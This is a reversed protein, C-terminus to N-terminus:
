ARRREIRVRRHYRHDIEENILRDAEHEKIGLAKSIAITDPGFAAYAERFNM